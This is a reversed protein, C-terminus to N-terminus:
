ARVRNAQAIDGLFAASPKPTREQTERYVAILGFEM